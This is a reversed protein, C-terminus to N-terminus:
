NGISNSIDVMCKKSEERMEKVGDYVVRRLKREMDIIRGMWVDDDGDGVEEVKVEFTEEDVLTKPVLIYFYKEIYVPPKDFTMCESDDVMDAKAVLFATLERQKIRDFSDNMIAILLNMLVIMMTLEYAVFLGIAVSPFGSGTFVSIEFDGLLMAFVSILSAGLTGFADIGDPSCDDVAVAVEKRTCTGEDSHALCARCPNYLSFFAVGFGLWIFVALLLFSLMDKMIEFIMIVLPATSKFMQMYYLIKWWVAVNTIAVVAYLYRYEGFFMVPIAVLLSSYTFLELINWRSSFWHKIGTMIPLIWNTHGARAGQCFVILQALERFITYSTLAMVSILCVVILLVSRHNDHFIADWVSQTYPAHHAMIISFLSFLIIVMMYVMFDKLASRKAYASWKWRIVGQIPIQTFIDDPAGLIQLPRLIGDRGPHALNAYPVVFAVAKAKVANKYESATFKALPTFMASCFDLLVTQQPKEDMSPCHCLNSVGFLFQEDAFVDYPVEVEGIPVMMYKSELVSICFRRFDTSGGRQGSTQLLKVLEESLLDSLHARHTVGKLLFDLLMSLMEPSGNEVAMQLANEYVGQANKRRFDLFIDKKMAFELIQNCLTINESKVAFLFLSYNKAKQMEHPIKNLFMSRGESVLPRNLAGRGFDIILGELDANGSKSNVLKGLKFDWTSVDFMTGDLRNEYPLFSAYPTWVVVVPKQQEDIEVSAIRSGDRSCAFLDLWASAIQVEKFAESLRGDHLTRALPLSHNKFVRKIQHIHHVNRLDCKSAKPGRGNSAWEAKAEVWDEFEEDVDVEKIRRLTFHNEGMNLVPEPEVHVSIDFYPIAQSKGFNVWTFEQPGEPTFPLPCIPWDAFKSGRSGSSILRKLMFFIEEDIPDEDPPQFTRDYQWNHAAGDTNILIWRKRDAWTAPILIIKDAQSGSTLDWLDVRFAFKEDKPLEWGLLAKTDGRVFKVFCPSAGSSNEVKHRFEAIGWMLSHLNGLADSVCVRHVDGGVFCIGVPRASGLPIEGVMSELEVSGRELRWMNVTGTPDCIVVKQNDPSFDFVPFNQLDGVSKPPSKGHDEHGVECRGNVVRAVKIRCHSHNDLDWVQVVSWHDGAVYAVGLKSGDDSIKCMHPVSNERLVEDALPLSIAHQPTCGGIVPLMGGVHWVCYGGDAGETAIRGGMGDTIFECCSGLKIEALENGSHVDFICLNYRDGIANPIGLWQGSKPIVISGEMHSKPFQVESIPRCTELDWMVVQVVTNQQGDSFTLLCLAGDRELFRCSSTLGRYYPNFFKSDRQGCVTQVKLKSMPEGMEGAASMKEVDWISVDNVVIKPFENDHTDTNIWTALKTGDESWVSDEAHMDIEQMYKGSIDPWLLGGKPWYLARDAPCVSVELYLKPWHQAIHPDEPDAEPPILTSRDDRDEIMKFLVVPLSRESTDFVLLFDHFVPEEERSTPNSLAGYGCVIFYKGGPSFSEALVLTKKPDLALNEERLAKEVLNLKSWTENSNKDWAVIAVDTERDGTHSRTRTRASLFTEGNWALRGCIGECCELEDYGHGCSVDVDKVLQGNDADWIVVHIEFDHHHHHHHNHGESSGESPRPKAFGGAWYKATSSLFQFERIHDSRSFAGLGATDVKLYPIRTTFNFDAAFSLRPSKILPPGDTEVSEFAISPNEEEEPLLRARESQQGHRSVSSGNAERSRDM